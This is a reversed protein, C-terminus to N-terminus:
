GMGKEEKAVIVFRNDFYCAEMRTSEGVKKHGDSLLILVEKNGHNEKYKELHKILENVTM